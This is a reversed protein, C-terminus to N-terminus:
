SQPLVDPHAEDVSHLTSLGIRGHGLLHNVLGELTETDRIGAQKMRSRVRQLTNDVTKESVNWIQAVEAYTLLAASSGRLRNLAFTTLYVTERDTLATGFEMTADGGTALTPQPAVPEDARYLLQYPTPGAVFSVSGAPMPLACETGPPLEIRAGNEGFVLLRTSSGLNHLWWVLGNWRFEGTVRHMFKNDEDLALEANRGFSLSEEASLGEGAFDLWLTTM